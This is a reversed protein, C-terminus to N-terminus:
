VARRSACRSTTRATCSRRCSGHRRFYQKGYEQEIDARYRAPQRYGRQARGGRRQAHAAHEAFLRIEAEYFEDRTDLTHRIHAISYQTFLECNERDIELMLKRLADYNEAHEVAEKWKILQARRAEGDPRKYELTSFKYHDM